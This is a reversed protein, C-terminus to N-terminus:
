AGGATLPAAAAGLVAPLLVFILILALGILATTRVALLAIPRLGSQANAV